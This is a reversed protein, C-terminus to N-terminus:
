HIGEWLASNDEPETHKVYGNLGRRVMETVLRRVSARLRALKKHLSNSRTESSTLGVDHHYLNYHSLELIRIYCVVEDM